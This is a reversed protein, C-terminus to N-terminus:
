HSIIMESSSSLEISRSRVIPTLFKFKYSIQVQVPCGPDNPVSTCAATGNGPWTPTTTIKAPDIGPPAISTVYDQVVSNSGDAPGADPDAISCSNDLDCSHGRVAAYRTADRAANSLFHYAYLARGFDTIGFLLVFLLVVGLAFEVM